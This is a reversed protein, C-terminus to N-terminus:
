KMAEEIQRSQEKLQQLQEQNLPQIHKEMDLEIQHSQERLRNFQEETLPRSIEEMEWDIRMSQEKLQEIQEPTLPQIQQAMEGDIQASRERLSELENQTLPQFSEEMEAVILNSQEKLQDLMEPTLPEDIWIGLEAEDDLSAATVPVSKIIFLMISRNETDYVAAHNIVGYFRLAKAMAQDLPVDKMVLDRKGSPKEGQIRLELDLQGVISEMTQSFDQDQIDISILRERVPKAEASAHNSGSMFSIAFLFLGIVLLYMQNKM